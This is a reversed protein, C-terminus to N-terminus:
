VINKDKVQSLFHDLKERTNNYLKESKTKKVM